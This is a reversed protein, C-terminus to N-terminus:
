GADIKRGIAAHAWREEDRGAEAKMAIEEAVDMGFRLTDHVHTYAHRGNRGSLYLNEFRDLYTQVERVREEIGMELVPYANPLREVRTGLLM